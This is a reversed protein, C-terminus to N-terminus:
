VFISVLAYEFTISFIFRVSLIENEHVIRFSLSRSNEGEVRKKYSPKPAEETLTENPSTKHIKHRQLM